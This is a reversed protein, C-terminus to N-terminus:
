AAVKITRSLEADVYAIRSRDAEVLVSRAIDRDVYISRSRVYLTPDFRFSQYAIGSVEADGVIAGTVPRIAGASGEVIATVSIIATPNAIYRGTGSTTAIGTASATPNAITVSLVNPYLLPLRNYCCDPQCDRPNYGCVTATGTVTGTSM